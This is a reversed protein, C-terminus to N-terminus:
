LLSKNNTITTSSICIHTLELSQPLNLQFKIVDYIESFKVKNFPFKTNHELTNPYINVIRLKKDNNSNILKLSSKQLNLKSERYTDDSGGNFIASTLINFITKNEYKWMEFLEEFLKQQYIPHYANNIFVDLDNIEKIFSKYNKLDYENSRSFGFVEYDNKLTEFLERGLFESHGTIGIKM